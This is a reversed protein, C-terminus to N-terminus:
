LESNAGEHIFFISKGDDGTPSQLNRDFITVANFCLSRRLEDCRM